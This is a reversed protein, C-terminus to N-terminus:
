RRRFHEVFHLPNECAGDTLRLHVVATFGDAAKIANSTACASSTKAIVGYYGDTLGAFNFSGDKASVTKALDQGGTISEVSVNVGSVPKGNHDVVTGTIEPAPSSAAVALLLCALINM